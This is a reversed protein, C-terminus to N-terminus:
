LSFDKSSVYLNFDANKALDTLIEALKKEFYEFQDITNPKPDKNKQYFNLIADKVLDIEATLNQPVFRQDDFMELCFAPIRESWFAWDEFAGGDGLELAKKLEYNTPLNVLLTKELFAYQARDFDTVRQKKAANAPNSPMVFWNIFGHIDIATTFKKSRLIDRIQATENESFAADGFNERSDGWFMGFNRNLNIKRGNYRSALITGNPNAYPVLTFQYNKLRALPGTKKILQNKLYLVFESALFENGHLGGQIYIFYKPSADTSFEFSELKPNKLISDTPVSHLAFFTAIIAILYKM